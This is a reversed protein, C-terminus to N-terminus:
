FDPRNLFANNLVAKDSLIKEFRNMWIDFEEMTFRDYESQNVSIESMSQGVKKLAIYVKYVALERDNVDDMYGYVGKELYQKYSAMMNEAYSITKEIDEVGKIEGYFSEKYGNPKSLNITALKDEIYHKLEKM